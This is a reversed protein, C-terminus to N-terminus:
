AYGFGKSNAVAFTMADKFSQYSKHTVPLALVCGCTNAKPFKSLEGNNEPEHLFDVTVHCGLPPMEKCGTCFFLLGSLSMETEAEETDQLYDNWYSIVLNESLRNNSGEESFHVSIIQTFTEMSLNIPNYCFVKNFVDPNSEVARLVGLLSLGQKFQELAVYARGLAYWRATQEVVAKIDGVSKLPRLTGALELVNDLKYKSMVENGEKSSHADSLKNLALKLEPDYVDEVSVNTNEIGKVLANYLVPSLCNIGPGGHVLSLAIVKGAYLYDLNAACSASCSLFKGESPGCFLQSSVLWEIVLTVFERTPGGLDVAGESSGADDSFKVSIKNFPSFSKRKLGRKAGEWM